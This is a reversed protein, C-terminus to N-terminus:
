VLIKVKLIQTSSKVRYSLGEQCEKYSQVGTPTCAFESNLVDAWDIGDISCQMSSIGESALTSQVTILQDKTDSLFGSSYYVGEILFIDSSSFSLIKSM